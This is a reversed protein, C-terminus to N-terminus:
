DNNLSAATALMRADRHDISKINKLLLQLADNEQFHIAWMWSTYGQVDHKNPDEGADLLQQLRAPDRKLIAQTLPAV